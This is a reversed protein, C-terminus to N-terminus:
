ISFGAATADALFMRVTDLSLEDLDLNAMALKKLIDPPATIIHCGCARAQHINLVERVSAWLIEARPRITAAMAVAALMTPVPDRGTDAIRGAFISVIAPTHPHLAELVVATQALTLIATVNLKVGEASLTRVIDATSVGRSNMVPIKVYVNDGLAALRRGQALMEDLEDSFVEFSVSMDTIEALVARAFAAYDTVGAKRMLTPNTTFGDAGGSRYIALIDEIRAGDAYVKLAAPGHSSPGSDSGVAQSAPGSKRELYM